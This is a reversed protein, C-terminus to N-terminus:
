APSRCDGFDEILAAVHKELQAAQAELLAALSQLQVSLSPAARAAELATRRAKRRLDSIAYARDSESMVIIAEAM